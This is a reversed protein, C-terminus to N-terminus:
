RFAISMTDPKSHSHCHPWSGVAQSVYGCIRGTRVIAPSLETASLSAARQSLCCFCDLGSERTSLADLDSGDHQLAVTDAENM